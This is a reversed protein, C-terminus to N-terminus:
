TSSIPTARSRCATPWPTNPRCSTSRSRKATRCRPRSRYAGARGAIRGSRRDRRGGAHCQRLAGQRAARLGAAARRAAAGLDRGVPAAPDVGVAGDLVEVATTQADGGYAVKFRTGRVGAVVSPSRIQFRDDKKTAHTVQSEVEGHQLELVRDGAGTLVTRRLTGIDLVGDQAVTVHSGDPLELTVFGNHGPAFATARASRRARRSRCTFPNKGFAHEAPGSTAIVRASEPDQKLKDAPLRLAIGAPMRRPAPVHNLRSLMAWDGSDRLYRGAIEYLTDGEHTVYSVYVPATTKERPKPARSSQASGGVGARVCDDRDPRCALM